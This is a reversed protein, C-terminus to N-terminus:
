KFYKIIFDKIIGEVTRTTFQMGAKEMAMTQKKTVHTYPYIGFMFPFFAFLFSEEEKETIGKFYLHLLKKIVEFTKNFVCKFETLRELRSNEEMEYYNISLLKLLQERDSLSRAIFDAFGEATPNIEGSLNDELFKGWKRYEEGLLALFIEEKTQFYNYISPRTFSTEKSIEKLTIEKFSMKKYLKECASVIEEKRIEQKKDTSYKGM